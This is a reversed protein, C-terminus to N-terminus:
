SGDAGLSPVLAAVLLYSASPASVLSLSNSCLQEVINAVAKWSLLEVITPCGGTMQEHNQNAVKYSQVMLEFTLTVSLM